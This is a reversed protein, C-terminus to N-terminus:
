QQFVELFFKLEEELANRINEAKRFGHQEGEYIVLKTRLGRAQLAEFMMTAQSPPVIKDEAGQFFIVPCNLRDVHHLPSREDYLAQAEPYPGVLKDNYRAEFKHTDKTLATLDSVGFYSAGVRFINGFTLACLTTYGGASGGDIALRYKDALGVSVLYKAGYECDERDVIGWGNNLLQRYARGYGTSGGYNVDLVAFGRSTWYQITWSFAGTCQGTPGGHSKVLLPPSEGAPAHYDRNKPAYYFGYATRGQASPFSILEAASFYGPDISPDLVAGGVLHAEHTTLDYKVIKQSDTPFGAVFAVFNKGTRLTSIQAAEFPLEEVEGGHLPLQVLRWCGEKQYAAIIHDGCFGWTAMGFVWQPLGFEAALPYIPVSQNNELRYLNWWNSKDSVYCLVGDHSWQPQFISESDGGAVKRLNSLGEASFDAVWLETGDWPMNPHNWSLWALKRGDLSVAPSSFFDYDETLVRYDGSKPDILALFNDVHKGHVEGVAVLGHPTPVFDAFRADPKTLPIISDGEQRYVRQDGFNVFYIIGRDVTFAGGGYEHVRTRVNYEKPTVDVSHGGDELRVLVSRGGESPRSELWYITEGDVFVSGYGKVSTAIKEAIIPSRWSGYSAEQVVAEEM